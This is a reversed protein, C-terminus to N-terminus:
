SYDISKFYFWTNIYKFQIVNQRALTSMTTYIEGSAAYNLDDANNLRRQEVPLANRIERSISTNEKAIIFSYYQYVLIKM